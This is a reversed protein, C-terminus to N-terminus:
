SKKWTAEDHRFLIPVSLCAQQRAICFIVTSAVGLTWRKGSGPAAYGHMTAAERISEGRRLEASEHVADLLVEEDARDANDEDEHLQQEVVSVQQVVTEGDGAEDLHLARPVEADPVAM